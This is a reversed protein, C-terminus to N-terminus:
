RGDVGSGNIYEMDFAYFAEGALIIHMYILMLEGPLYIRTVSAVKEGAPDSRFGINRRGLRV